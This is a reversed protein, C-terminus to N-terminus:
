SEGFFALVVIFPFSVILSIPLLLVWVILSFILEM